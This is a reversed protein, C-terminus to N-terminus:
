PREVVGLMSVSVGVCVCMYVCRAHGEKSVSVNWSIFDTLLHNVCVLATPNKKILSKCTHQMM